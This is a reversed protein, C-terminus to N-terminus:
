PCIRMHKKDALYPIISTYAVLSFITMILFNVKTSWNKVAAYGSGPDSIRHSKTGHIRSGSYTQEPDRIGFGYKQSSKQTFLEIIKQFKSWM